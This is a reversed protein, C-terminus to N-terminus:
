LQQRKHSLFEQAAGLMGFPRFILIIKMIISLCQGNLQTSIFALLPLVLASPDPTQAQDPLASSWDLAPMKRVIVRTTVMNKVVM